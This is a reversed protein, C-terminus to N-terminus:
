HHPEAEEGLYAAIVREDKQVQRPAGEAIKEGHDLVMVQDSIDMVFDMDHDVLLITIGGQGIRRVLRALDTKERTSLGAAPEDLLLLRPEGALARAIELLRQQGFPLSLADEGARDALGVLALWECCAREAQADERCVGPLRLGASAFGARGKTHRGVMVNELVTMNAFLQVNQFTRALGLRAIVHPKLHDARRDDLWFAGGTARYVGSLLNFITTKGAGNPGIMAKVGGEPVVFSVDNVAVLGGFVKRLRDAKLVAAGM